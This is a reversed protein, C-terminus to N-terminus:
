ANVCNPDAQDLQHDGNNDSSDHCVDPGFLDTTPVEWHEPTSAADNPDSGLRRESADSWGDNDTDPAVSTAWWQVNCRNDGSVFSIGGLAQERRGFGDADFFVGDIDM